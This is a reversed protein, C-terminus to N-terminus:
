SSPELTWPNRSATRAFMGSNSSMTFALTMDYGRRTIIVRIKSDAYMWPLAQGLGNMSGIAPSLHGYQPDLFIQTEWGVFM